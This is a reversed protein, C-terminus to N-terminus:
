LYRITLSSLIINKFKILLRKKSKALVQNKRM